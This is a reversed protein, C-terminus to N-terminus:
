ITRVKIDKKVERLTRDYEFGLTFKIEKTLRKM